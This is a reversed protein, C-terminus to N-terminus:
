PGAWQPSELDAYRARVGLAAPREVLYTALPIQPFKTNAYEDQIPASPMYPMYPTNNGKRVGHSSNTNELLAYNPPQKWHMEGGM